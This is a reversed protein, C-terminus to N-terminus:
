TGASSELEGLKAVLADRRVPDPVDRRASWLADLKDALTVARAVEPTRARTTAIVQEEVKVSAAGAGRLEDAEEQAARRAADRHDADVRYRLRVEAGVVEEPSWDRSLGAPVIVDGPLGVHEDFWESDLHAMKTAPTSVREWSVLRGEPGDEFELVTYSKVEPEGFTCRRPSGGYLAPSDGIQWENGAGLHIHGLLYADARVLALDELGLELPM